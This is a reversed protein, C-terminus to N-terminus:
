EAARRNLIQDIKDVAKVEALGLRSRDTPTLGLLSMWSTLQKELTALMGVRPNAYAYGKDTYLVESEQELRAQWEARRDFGEALMLLAPMDSPALWHGAFETVTAWLAM